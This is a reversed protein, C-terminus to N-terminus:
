GKTRRRGATKMLGKRYHWYSLLHVLVFILGGTFWIAALIDLITIDAANKETEISIPTTMQPPLEVVIRRFGPSEGAEMDASAEGAQRKGESAKALLEGATQGNVPIVLRLALFFGFGTNGSQRM